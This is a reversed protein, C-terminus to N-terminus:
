YRLLPLLGFLRWLADDGRASARLSRASGRGVCADCVSWFRRGGAGFQRGKPAATVSHAGAQCRSGATTAQRQNSLCFQDARDAKVGAEVLAGLGGIVFPNAAAIDYAEAAQSCLLLEAGSAEAIHCWGECLKRTRQPSCKVRSFCQRIVHGMQTATEAFRLAQRWRVRYDMLALEPHHTFIADTLVFLGPTAPAKM